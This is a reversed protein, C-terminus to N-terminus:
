RQMGAIELFLAEWRDFIPAPQYGEILGRAAYGMKQRTQPSTMLEAFVAALSAPDGNGEVLLGNKGSAILQNVGACGAFGVAPLGHALAEALANPFGEWRSPMVFLHSQLYYKEIELSLGLINVRGQLGRAIVMTELEDRYEGDGLMNLIWEPFQATIQAFAEILVQPRKQYALHGVFLLTKPGGDEGAPEAFDKASSVANPIPVIRSRLYRPYIDRYLSFQVTIRKAFLYTLYILQRFRGMRLHDFRQPANRESAIVPIGLGAVALRVALYAGHQYGIIVDPMTEKVIQRIKIQRQCRLKWSAKQMADGMGLILWSIDANLPYYTQAGPQDWTLLSIEHGRVHMANMLQTAMRELGGAVKDFKRGVFLIKM